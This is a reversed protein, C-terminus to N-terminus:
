PREGAGDGLLELISREAGVTGGVGGPEEDVRGPELAVIRWGVDTQDLRVRATFRHRRPHRHTAHHVTGAVRWAALGTGDRDLRLPEHEVQQVEMRVGALAMRHRAQRHSVYAETLADGAFAGSLLAHLEVRDLEPDWAGAVV